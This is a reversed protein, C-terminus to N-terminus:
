FILMVHKVNNSNEKKVKEASGEIHGILSQLAHPKMSEFDWPLPKSDV